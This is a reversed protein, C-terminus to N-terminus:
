DVVLQLTGNRDIGLRRPPATLSEGESGDTPQRGDMWVNGNIEDFKEILNKKFFHRFQLQSESGGLPTRM